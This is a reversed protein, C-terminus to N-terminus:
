FKFITISNHLVKKNEGESPSLLKKYKCEFSFPQKALYVSLTEYANQGNELTYSSGRGDYVFVLADKFGSSYLAKAAHTVHHSKYYHFCNRTETLNLKKLVGFLETDGESDYGTM